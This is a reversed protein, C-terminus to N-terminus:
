ESERRDFGQEELWGQGAEGLDKDEGDDDHIDDRAGSEGAEVSEGGDDELVPAREPMVFLFDLGAATALFAEGGEELLVQDVLPQAWDAIVLKAQLAKWSPLKRYPSMLLNAADQHNRFTFALHFVRAVMDAEEVILPLLGAFSKRMGNLNRQLVNKGESDFSFDKMDSCYSEGLQRFYSSQNM